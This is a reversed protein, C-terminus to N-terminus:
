SDNKITLEIKDFINNVSNLDEKTSIYFTMEKFLGPHYLMLNNGVWNWFKKKM